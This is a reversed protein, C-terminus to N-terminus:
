KGDKGCPKNWLYAFALAGLAYCGVDRIDATFRGSWRPFLYEAFVSVVFFLIAIHLVPLVYADGKRFVTRRELLVLQLLIPMFLLPDLHSVGWNNSM